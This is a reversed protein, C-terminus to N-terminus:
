FCHFKLLWLSDIWNCTIKSSKWFYELFKESKKPCSNFNMTANLKSTHAMTVYCHWVSTSSTTRQAFIRCLEVCLRFLHPIRRRLEQFVGTTETFMCSCHNKIKERGRRGRSHVKARGCGQFNMSGELERDLVVASSHEPEWLRRWFSKGVRHSCIVRIASRCFLVLISERLRSDFWTRRSTFLLYGVDAM